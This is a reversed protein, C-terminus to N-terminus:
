FLRVPLQFFMKGYIKYFFHRRMELFFNSVLTWKRSWSICLVFTDYDNQDVRYIMFTNVKFYLFM